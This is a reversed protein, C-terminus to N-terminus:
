ECKMINNVMRIGLCVVIPFTSAKLLYAAILFGAYIQISGFSHSNKPTALFTRRPKGKAQQWFLNLTLRCSHICCELPAVMMDIKQSIQLAKSGARKWYVNTQQWNAYHFYALLFHLNEKLLGDWEHHTQKESHMLMKDRVCVDFTQPTFSAM